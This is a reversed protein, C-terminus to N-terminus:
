RTPLIQLCANLNFALTWDQRVLPARLSCSCVSGTLLVNGVSRFPYNTTNDEDGKGVVGWRWRGPVESRAVGM